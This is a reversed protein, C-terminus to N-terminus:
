PNNNELLIGPKTNFSWMTQIQIELCLSVILLIYFIFIFISLSCHTVPLGRHQLIEMICGNCYWNGSLTRDFCLYGANCCVSGPLWRPSCCYLQALLYLNSIWIGLFIFIFSSVNRKIERKESLVLFHKQWIQFLIFRYFPTPKINPIIM